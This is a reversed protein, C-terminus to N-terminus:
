QASALLSMYNSLVQQSPSGFAVREDLFAEVKKPDITPGDGDRVRRIVDLTAAESEVDFVVGSSDFITENAHLYKANVVPKCQRLAEFAISSGFNVVVDVASILTVSHESNGPFNVNNTKSLLEKEDASLAGSGRTHAKVFIMIERELSIKRILDICKTRYVNYDWHPLFFLVAFGDSKLNRKGAGLIELNIRSWEDCFRASGMVLIKESRIGYNINQEKHHVSQVVYRTFFERNSFDLGSKGKSMLKKLTQNFNPNLFISYGHPLAYIPLRLLSAPRLFFESRERGYPGAWENAVIEIGHWLLLGSGLVYAVLRDVVRRLPRFVIWTRLRSCYWKISTARLMTAGSRMLFGIRYDTSYDQDVFVFFTPWGCSAVKWIIPAMHDIDNYTRLLFLVKRTNHKAM